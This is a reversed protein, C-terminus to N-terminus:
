LDIRVTQSEKYFRLSRNGNVSENQFPIIPTGSSLKKLYTEPTTTMRRKRKQCNQDLSELTEM